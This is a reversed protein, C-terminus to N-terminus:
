GDKIESIEKLQGNAQQLRVRCAKYEAGLKYADAGYPIDEPVPVPRTMSEPVPVITTIETLECEQVVPVYVKEAACGTLLSTLILSM